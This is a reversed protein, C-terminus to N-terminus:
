TESQTEREVDVNLLIGGCRDCRADDRQVAVGCSADGCFRARGMIVRTTWGLMLGLMLMLPWPASWNIYSITLGIGGGALLPWLPWDGLEISIRRHRNWQFGELTVDLSALREVLTLFFPNYTQTPSMTLRPTRANQWWSVCHGIFVPWAMGSRAEVHRILEDPFAASLHAALAELADTALDDRAEVSADRLIRIRGHLALARSESERLLRGQAQSLLYSSSAAYRM